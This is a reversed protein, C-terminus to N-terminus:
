NPAVQLLLTVSTALRHIRDIARAAARYDRDQINDILSTIAVSIDEYKKEVCSTIQDPLFAHQTANCRAMLAAVAVIRKPIPESGAGPHDTVYQAILKLSSVCAETACEMDARLDNQREEQAPVPISSISM